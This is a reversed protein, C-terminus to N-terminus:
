HFQQKRCHDKMQLHKEKLASFKAAIEEYEPLKPHVHIPHQFPGSNTRLIREPRTEKPHEHPMSMARSSGSFDMGYSFSEEKEDDMEVYRKSPKSDEYSFGDYPVALNEINIREGKMSLSAFKPEKKHKRSTYYNASEPSEWGQNEASVSRRMISRRTRSKRWGRWVQIEPSDNEKSFCEEAAEALPVPSSKFKFVRKDQSSMNKHLPTHAEEVDDLYVIKEQYYQPSPSGRSPSSSSSIVASSKNCESPSIFPAMMLEYSIGASDVLVSKGGSVKPDLVHFKSEKMTYSIPPSNSDIVHLDTTEKMQKHLRSAYEMALVEPRLCYDRSIEDALRKKVEESVSQISSLKDRIERNVLNGPYLELARKIFNEGYREGFLKRIPRLEPLDGCRVSAFILSSVAQNIDNPCDRHQRIYSINILIFECFHDLLEHVEMTCKDKFLQEARDIALDEHGTKILQAVDQRLQRIISYRKNKLLKIRCQVRRILKKCKSAKRWGFLADAMSSSDRKGTVLRKAGSNEQCDIDRCPLALELLLALM